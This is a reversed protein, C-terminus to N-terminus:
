PLSGAYHDADAYTILWDPGRREWVLTTAGRFRMTAGSGDVVSDHFTFSVVAGEPSLVMVEIDEFGPDIYRLSPLTQQIQRVTVDRDARVGDNYMYFDQSLHKVVLRPDLLRQADEFARTASDVSAEIALREADTLSDGASSCASAVVAPVLGTLILTRM